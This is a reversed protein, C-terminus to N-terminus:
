MGDLREMRGESEVVLGAADRADSVERWFVTFRDTPPSQPDRSARLVQQHPYRTHLLALTDDDVAASFGPAHNVVVVDIHWRSLLDMVRAACKDTPQDFLDYFTRTPNQRHSLFYVEPCDPAAYICSGHASHTQILTVLEHYVRADERYVTFNCRPLQLAATPFDTRRFGNLLRPDPQPIRLVALCIAFALLVAVVRKPAYREHAVVYLAALVMLPAAFFFYTGYAYPYQVLSGLAATSLILCLGTRGPLHPQAYLLGMGVLVVCPVLNRLSQFAFFYGRASASGIFVAVLAASCAAVALPRQLSSASRFAGLMLLGAVPLSLCMWKLDPPALAAGALRLAPLVFLGRYLDHLSDTAMYPVLFLGVVVALGLGYPMLDNALRRARVQGRGRGLQWEQCAIYLAVAVLPLTFHVANVMPRAGCMFTLALLAFLVCCGTVLTSFVRSRAADADCQCQEHHAIYILGAAAFYVGTIKMVLSCGACCGAWFLWRRCGTDLHMLLALMGLTAFFLNYWSPMGESYIPVSLSACLCTVAAAVRASTVRVAILFVATVFLSFYILLVTRISESRVGLLRFALAHVHGLGGTYPEDFDRHQMQGDLVREATQGLQGTDHPVWGKDLSIGAYAISIVVAVVGCVRTSAIASMARPISLLRVGPLPVM